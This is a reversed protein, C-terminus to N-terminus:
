SFHPGKGPGNAWAPIPGRRQRKTQRMKQFEQEPPNITLCPANASSRSEEAGNAPILLHQERLTLAGKRAAVVSVCQGGDRPATPRSDACAQGFQLGVAGM